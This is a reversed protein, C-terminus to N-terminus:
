GENLKNVGNVLPVIGVVALPQVTDTNVPVAVTPPTAYEEPIDIKSKFLMGEEGITM